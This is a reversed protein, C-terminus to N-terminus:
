YKHTDGIKLMVFMLTWKCQSVSIQNNSSLFYWYYYIIVASLM